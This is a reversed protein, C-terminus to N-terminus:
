GASLYGSEIERQVAEKINTKTIKLKGNSLLRVLKTFGEEQEMKAIVSSYGDKGNTSHPLPGVLILRYASNYQLDGFRYRKLKDYGLHLEVRDQSIGQSTISKVIDNEKAAAEGFVIIKGYSLSDDWDNASQRIALDGLGIQRLYDDLQHNKWASEMQQYIRDQVEDVLGAFDNESLLTM